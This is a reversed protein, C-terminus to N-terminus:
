KKKISASLADTISEEYTPHPRIISAVQSETLKNAIAVAFEGIMDTARSCFLQAGLLTGNEDAVVKIFGREDG